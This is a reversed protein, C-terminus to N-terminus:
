RAPSQPAQADLEARRAGNYRTAWYSSGMDEVRVQGGSRPSHIFKGEGIYIGVHSFARKMTNFFVLDGPKLEARDVPALSSERAQEDARRPLVLGFTQEFLHRTFGSCDFGQEPSDGGRRYPVGLFNLATVVLDSAQDRVQRVLTQTSEAVRAPLLLGREHLLQLMADGPEAPAAQVALALTLATAALLGRGLRRQIHPLGRM